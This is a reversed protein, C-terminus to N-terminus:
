SDRQLCDRLFDIAQEPTEAHHAREILDALEPTHPVAAGPPPTVPVLTRAIAAALGPIGAGTRASIRIAEPVDNTVPLDCKNLVIIGESRPVDAGRVDSADIVWLVLDADRLFQEAKAIGEAELGAAERLGATDALEVPWGDFALRVTVVDRTTGPTESVVSRQYGALANVLSSKGVNPAGAVAVRWPEVLHRGLAAFRALQALKERDFRETLNYVARRFAGHHQDLLISATRLTSAYHVGAQSNAGRAFGCAGFADLVWQVIRRGGHCHIEVVPEPEIQKVALIVEDGDALKGFRFRNTEPREPLPKGAPRFLRRAADWAAPGAVRVTAIAGTGQPTLLTV